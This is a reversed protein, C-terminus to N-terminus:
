RHFGKIWMRGEIGMSTAFIAELTASDADCVEYLPEGQNEAETASVLKLTITGVENEDLDLAKGTVTHAYESPDGWPVLGASVSFEVIGLFEDDSMAIEITFFVSGAVHDGTLLVSLLVCTALPFYFRFNEREIVIDGPLKGLWPISLAVLWVLGIVAILVGVIVLTWALHQM